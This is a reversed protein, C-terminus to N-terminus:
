SGICGFLDVFIKFSGRFDFGRREGEVEGGGRREGEKREGEKEREGM